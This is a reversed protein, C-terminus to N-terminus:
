LYDFTVWCHIMIFLAPNVMLSVLGVHFVILSPLIMLLKGPCHCHVILNRGSSVEQLDKFKQIFNQLSFDPYFLTDGAIVLINENQYNQTEIVFRIDAVAGLRDSNSETGDNVIIVLITNSNVTQFHRSFQRMGNSKRNLNFNSNLKSMLENVTTYQLPKTADFKYLHCM